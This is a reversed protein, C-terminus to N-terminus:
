ENYDDNDNFDESEAYDLDVDKDFDRKLEYVKYQVGNINSDLAIIEEYKPIIIDCSLCFKFDESNRCLTDGCYDCINNNRNQLKIAKAKQVNYEQPLENIVYMPMKVLDDIEIQVLASKTSEITNM